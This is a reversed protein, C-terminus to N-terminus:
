AIVGLTKLKELTEPALNHQNDLLAQVKENLNRKVDDVKDAPIKGVSLATICRSIASRYAGVTKADLGKNDQKLSTVPASTEGTTVWNDILAWRAAIADDYAAVAKRLEAREADTKAQKMKEHTARLFKYDQANLDYLAQLDEPLDERKIKAGADIKVREVIGKKDQVGQLIVGPISKIATLQPQAALKGLEYALKEASTKRQFLHLLSRNRSYQAFLQVGTAYDREESDLWQQVDNTNKEEEM